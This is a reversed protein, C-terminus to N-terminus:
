SGPATPPVRYHYEHHDTFGAQAYLTRAATNHNEVQLYIGTVGRDAAAAVLAGTVARGLGRRRHRRDVEVATLGAWDGAAAVRGIALTEGAERISAFAQWPASMLLRRSIPPPKQGQFRHLALWAPDPESDIDVPKGTTQDATRAAAVDPAATMVIAGHSVSWGREALFRDLVSAQPQGVPFAISIMAPLNRAQYWRCVEAVAAAMPLGPDGVALASNARGTFGEASRLRWRGLAVEEPAQWGRAAAEELDDISTTV